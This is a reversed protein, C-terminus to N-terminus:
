FNRKFVSEIAEGDCRIATGSYRDFHKGSDASPMRVEADILSVEESM